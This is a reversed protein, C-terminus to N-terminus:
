VLLKFLRNMMEDLPVMTLTLPLLPLALLIALQMLLWRDFLVPNMSEVVQFSNALDALSQIDGTGLLPGQGPKAEVNNDLWKKQFDKTYRSALMGFEHLGKIKANILHMTFFFLPALVLLMMALFYAIIELKFDLLKAGDHWIQTGIVGALFASHAFIIPTFATVTQKLFGLGGVHDPHLPNLQLPLRAVRWLFVYWLCIRYYWRLLIFRSLPMSVFVLWWGAPTLHLNGDSTTGYWAAVHLTIYNRWLWYGLTFSLVLMVVEAVVSNRFHLTQDILLEFRARESPAIIERDLFERVLERIRRHIIIEAAILLPVCILFKINTDLDYLFPVNVGGLFTGALLTLLVLPLWLILVGLLIRRPVHGMTPKVLRLRLLLQYLPGGVVLSFDEKGGVDTLKNNM